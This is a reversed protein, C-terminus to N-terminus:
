IRLFFARPSNDLKVTGQYSVKDDCNLDAKAMMADIDNHSHEEDHYFVESILHLEANTVFGNGDLDYTKFQHKVEDDTILPHRMENLRYEEYEFYGM